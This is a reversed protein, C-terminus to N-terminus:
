DEMAKRYESDTSGMGDFWSFINEMLKLNEGKLVRHAGDFWDLFWYEIRYPTWFGRERSAYFRFEDSPGGWSLQYRFYPERQDRFTSPAVYDFGLGYEHLSGFRPHEDKGQQHATWIAGLAQLTARLEKGVRRKCARERTPPTIVPVKSM